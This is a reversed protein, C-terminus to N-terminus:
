PRQGALQPKEAPAELASLIKTTAKQIHDLSESLTETNGRYLQIYDASRTSTDLGIATFVANSFAEAQTERVTKSTENRRAGRHLREHALEHVLVAFEGPEDLGPVITIEGGASGGLPPM